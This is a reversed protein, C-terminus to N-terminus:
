YVVQSQLERLLGEAMFGQFSAWDSRLQPLTQIKTEDVAVDMPFITAYLLGYQYLLEGYDCWLGAFLKSLMLM